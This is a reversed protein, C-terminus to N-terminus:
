HAVDHHEHGKSVATESAAPRLTVLWPPRCSMKKLSHARPLPSWEPRVAKRSPGFMIAFAVISASIQVDALTQPRAPDMQVAKRCAHVSLSRYPRQEHRTFVQGQRGLVGPSSRCCGQGNKASMRPKIEIM